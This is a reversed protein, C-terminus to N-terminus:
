TPRSSTVALTITGPFASTRRVRLPLDTVACSGLRLFPGGVVSIEFNTRVVLSTTSSRPEQGVSANGNPDATVTLEVPTEFPTADDSAVLRMTTATESAPNPLFSATVGTPLGAVSMALPESSGNLRTIGIPVDISSGQRLSNIQAPASIS